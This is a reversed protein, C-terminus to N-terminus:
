FTLAAIQDPNKCVVEGFFRINGAGFEKAIVILEEGKEIISTDPIM